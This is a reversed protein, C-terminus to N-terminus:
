IRDFIFARYVEERNEPGRRYNRRSNNEATRDYGCANVNREEYIENERRCAFYLVSSIWEVFVCYLEGVSRYGYGPGLKLVNQM